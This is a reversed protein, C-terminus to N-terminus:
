ELDEGFTTVSLAPHYYPDDRIVARWRAAFRDAEADFRKRAAGVAPGRSVSEHHALVAHPTWLSRLGAAGLRLCFDIDNFDVAFAQADFGGVRDFAARSVALCAATVGAVEHAVRLRGLHGPTYAPRNRLIHGARGGLGVVVGAHQLRGNGYLLKAGVAGIGPRVALRVMEALWQAERVEVDNNLLVVVAGRSAAVGDNVLGSFNFPGPRDLRRVRPDGSLRAYLDAVEPDTSGNDVLVLELAPYATEELVGRVAVRLLDPRDRTPIVVSVLPAPDPLPWLLDPTGGARLRAPSGARVLAEELNTAPGDEEPGATRRCLIHAVHRVRDPAVALAAALPLTRAGEQPTWRSRAALDRAILTPRGTYGTALALDPSWTPKLRPVLGSATAVEEDAYVMEPRSPHAFAAALLALADPALVDGPHLVGVVDADPVVPADAVSVRPDPPLDAPAGRWRVGLRWDRHSQALLGGLSRRLAQAEDSGAEILLGIRLSGGPPPRDLAPEFARVQRAKWAPYAAMPMVGAAIRLANHFRRRDGQAAYSLALALRDPRRAARALVSPLRLLRATEIRLGTEPAALLIAATDRPVPGIWGARGLVPGPLLAETASGDAAVFRLMPRVPRDFRNAAYTLALWRGGAPRDLVLRRSFDPDGPNPELRFGAM